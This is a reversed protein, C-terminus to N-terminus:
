WSISCSWYFKLLLLAWISCWIASMRRDHGNVYVESALWSDSIGVFTNQQWWRNPDKRGSGIHWHCRFAIIRIFQHQYRRGSDDFLSRNPATRAFRFLHDEGNCNLWQGRDDTTAAYSIVAYPWLSALIRCTCPILRNALVLPLYRRVHVTLVIFCHRKYLLCAYIRMCVPVYLWFFRLMFIRYLSLFVMNAVM